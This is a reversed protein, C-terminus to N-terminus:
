KHFAIKKARQGRSKCLVATCIAETETGCLFLVFFFGDHHSGKLTWKNRDQKRYKLLDVICFLDQRRLECSSVKRLDSFLRFIWFAADIPDSRGEQRHEVRM